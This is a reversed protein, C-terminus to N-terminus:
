NESNQWLNADIKGSWNYNILEVDIESILLTVSFALGGFYSFLFCFIYSIHQMGDPIGM